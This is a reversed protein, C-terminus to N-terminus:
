RVLDFGVGVTVYFGSYDIDVSTGNVPSTTTGDSVTGQSPLHGMDRFRYGARIYGAVGADNTQDLSVFAAYTTLTREVTADYYFQSGPQELSFGQTGKAHSRVVQGGVSLGALRVIRFAAEGGVQTMEFKFVNDYFLQGPVHVQNDRTSREYSYTGGVRFGPLLWIGVSAEPGAAIRIKQLNVPYGASRLADQDSM